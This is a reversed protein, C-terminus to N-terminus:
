KFVERFQELSKQAEKPYGWRHRNYAQVLFFVSRGFRLEEQSLHTREQFYQDIYTAQEAENRCVRLLPRALDFAIPGELVHELDITVLRQKTKVINSLSYDGHILGYASFQTTPLKNKKVLQHQLLYTRVRDIKEDWCDLDYNDVQHFTAQLQAVASIKITPLTDLTKGDVFTTVFGGELIKIIPSSIIRSRNKEDLKQKYRTINSTRDAPRYVFTGDATTFLLPSHRTGAKWGTNIVQYHSIEGFLGLLISITERVNKTNM